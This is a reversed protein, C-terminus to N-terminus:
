KIIRAQVTGAKLDDRLVVEYRNSDLSGSRLVFIIAQARKDALDASAGKTGLSISVQEIKPNARMTAAIEELAAQGDPALQDGTTFKIPPKITFNEGELRSYKPCGQPAPGPESPCKDVPEPIQDNDLDPCGNAAKDTHKIGAVTPCADEADFIGDGDKDPSPCGNQAPDSREPGAEDPCADKADPIKDLDRDAPGKPPLPAPRGGGVYAISILGRAGPVGPAGGFSAGGAIGLQVGGFSFRAVALPEVAFDIKNTPNGELAADVQNFMLLTPELGLWLSPTVKLQAACALAGRAGDGDEANNDAATTAGAKVSFFLFPSLSALCGYRLSKGEGAIGFDVEARLRKDSLFVSDQGVPAWVRAGAILTFKRTDVPRFHVGVRPDGVGFSSAVPIKLGFKELPTDRDGSVFLSVPLALDITLWPLPTISGGVHALLAQQVPSAEVVEKGAKDVSIARLLGQGYDFTAGFAFEITNPGREHPGLARVFPSEPSAPQLQDIRVGQGLAKLGQARTSGAISLGVGLVGIAVWGKRSRV